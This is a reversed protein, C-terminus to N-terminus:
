ISSNKFFAEGAREIKADLVSVSMVNVVVLRFFTCTDLKVGIRWM